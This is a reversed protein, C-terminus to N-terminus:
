ECLPLPSDIFLKAQENNLEMKFFAINSYGECRAIKLLLFRDLFTLSEGPNMNRFIIYAAGMTTKSSIVEYRDLCSLNDTPIQQWEKHTAFIIGDDNSLITNTDRNTDM